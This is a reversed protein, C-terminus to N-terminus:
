VKVLSEIKKYIEDSKKGNTMLYEAFQVIESDPSGVGFAVIINQTSAWLIRGGVPDYSLVSKDFARKVTAQYQIKKDSVLDNFIEPKSEAHAEVKDRLIEMEDNEDWGMGAAFEKVKEDSMSEAIDLAKKRSNRNERAEKSVKKEDIREFIANKKVDQFLGGTLKPHLELYMCEALAEPTDLEIEVVGADKGIVRVRKFSYPIGKEDVKDVIGIKKVKSKGDREERKDIIDFVIPDLTWRTPWIIDGNIKQPDPNPNSIKFKYRVKPGYSTIKDELEKRLVPSLDNFHAIQQLM